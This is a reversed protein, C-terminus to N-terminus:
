GGLLSQRFGSAADQLLDARRAANLGGQESQFKYLEMERALAKNYMDALTARKDEKAQRKAAKKTAAASMGASAGQSAAAISAAILSATAPDVM